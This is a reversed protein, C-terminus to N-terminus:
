IGIRLALAAALYRYAGSASNAASNSFGISAVVHDLTGWGYQLEGAARWALQAPVRKGVQQAGLGANLRGTWSRSSRALSTRAEALTFRDPSFYGIGHRENTFVRGLVGASGIRGLPHMLAALGSLRRNGDSRWTVGGGGSLALGGVLGADLSGQLDDQEPGSGILQATDDLPTHAFGVGASIRPSLRLGLSSRYTPVQRLDGTGPDLWRSGGALTFQAPGRAAELGAEGSTRGADRVPDSAAFSGARVFGRLGDALAFSTSLTRSVIVNKDSDRDIGFGSEAQPRRAARIERELRTADRSGPDLSLVQSVQADAAHLRGQSNLLRALGLRAEVNNADLGLAARYRAEAVQAQGSWADNQARAILADVDGPNAALMAAYASDAAAYRGAWGLVRARGLRGERDKPDSELLRDYDALSEGLRGAWSLLRAEDGLLGADNPEVARARAVLVLASDLHSARSELLGLRHNARVSRPDRALVLRYAHRAEDARGAFYASDAHALDAALSDAATAAAVRAPAAGRAPAAVRAPVAGGRPASALLVVALMGTAIM